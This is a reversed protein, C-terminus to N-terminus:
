GIWGRGSLWVAAMIMPALPLPKLGSAKSKLWARGQKLYIAYIFSAMAALGLTSVFVSYFSAPGLVSGLGMLLKADGGGWMRLGFLSGALLFALLFGFVGTWGHTLLGFILFPVTLINPIRRHRLDTLSAAVLVFWM